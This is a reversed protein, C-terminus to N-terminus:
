KGGELEYMRILYYAMLVEEESDFGQYYCNLAIEKLPIEKMKFDVVM